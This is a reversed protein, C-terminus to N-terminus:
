GVGGFAAHGCFECGNAAVEVYLLQGPEVKLVGSTVAGLGGAAGFEKATARQVAFRSL